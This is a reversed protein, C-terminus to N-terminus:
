KLNLTVSYELDKGNTTIDTKQTDSIGLKRAILNANFLGVSAGKYNQVFCNQRIRTIIPAFDTYRSEKNSAYDKLDAIINKDWLYCEFGEFTIPVQLPTDKEEGDKGVYDRRYLPSDKEHQVYDCFFQWLYEPSEIKKAVGM